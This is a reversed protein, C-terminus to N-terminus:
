ALFYLRQSYLQDDLSVQFFQLQQRPSWFLPHKLVEGAVPRYDPDLDIM